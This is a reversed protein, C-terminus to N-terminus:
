SRPFAITSPPPAHAPAPATSGSPAPTHAPATCEHTIQLAPLAFVQLLPPPTHLPATSSDPTSRARSDTPGDDARTPLPVPLAPPSRCPATAPSPPPVTPSISLMHRKDAAPDSNDAPATTM